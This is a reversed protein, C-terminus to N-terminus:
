AKMRRRAALASLGGVLALVASSPEPVANLSEGAPLASGVKVRIYDWEVGIGAGGDTAGFLLAPDDQGVWSNDLESILSGNLYFKARGNDGWWTSPDDGDPSLAPDIDGASDMTVRATYWDGVVWPSPDFPGLLEYDYRECYVCGHAEVNAGPVEFVVHAEPGPYSGLAPRVRAIPGETASGANYLWIPLIPGGSATPVPDLFRFKYELTYTDVGALPNTGTGINGNNSHNIWTGAGQTVTSGWNGEYQTWGKDSSFPLVDMEEAWDATAAQSSSVVGLTLLLAAVWCSVRM